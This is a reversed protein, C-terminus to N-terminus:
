SSSVVSTSAASIGSRKSAGPGSRTITPTVWWRAFPAAHPWYTTSITIRPPYPGVLHGRAGPGHGAAGLWGVPGGSRRPVRRRQGARLDLSASDGPGAALRAAGWKGRVRGDQPSPGRTFRVAVAARRRLGSLPSPLSRAPDAHAREMAGQAGTPSPAPTPARPPPPPESATPAAPPPPAAPASPMANRVISYVFVGVGAFIAVIVGIVIWRIVSAASGGGGGIEAALQAVRPDDPALEAARQIAARAELRRGLALLARARSRPYDADHPAAAEGREFCALAGAPDRALLVLGLTYNGEPHDPHAALLARLKAEARADDRALRALNALGILADPYDPKLQVARELLGAAADSAQSDGARAAAEILLQAKWYYGLESRPAAQMHAAALKEVYLSGGHKSLFPCLALLAREEPARAIGEELVAAFSEMDEHEDFSDRLAGLTRVVADAVVARDLEASPAVPQYGTQPSWGLIQPAAGQAIRVVLDGGTRSCFLHHDAQVLVPATGCAACPPVARGARAGAEVLGPLAAQVEGLSRYPARTPILPLPAPTPRNCRPCAYSTRVMDFARAGYEGTREPRVALATADDDMTLFEFYRMARAPTAVPPLGLQASFAALFEAKPAGPPPEVRLEALEGGSTQFLRHCTTCRAAGGTAPGELTGGCSNCNM